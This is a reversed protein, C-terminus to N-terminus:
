LSVQVSYPNVVWFQEKIKKHLEEPFYCYFSNLLSLLHVHFGNLADGPINSDLQETFEKVMPFSDLIRNKMSEACFKIKKKFAQVKDIAEFVTVAKGQLSLSL